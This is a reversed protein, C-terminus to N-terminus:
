GFDLMHPVYEKVEGSDLKVRYSITTPCWTEVVGAGDPTACKTKSKSPKGSNRFTVVKRTTGSVLHKSTDDLTDCNVILSTTESITSTGLFIFDGALARPHESEMDILTHQQNAAFTDAGKLSSFIIQIM